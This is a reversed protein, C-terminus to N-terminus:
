KCLEGSLKNIKEDNKQIESFTEKAQKPIHKFALKLIDMWLKNNDKRVAQIKDIINNSDNKLNKYSQKFDKISVDWNIDERNLVDDLDKISHYSGEGTQPIPIFNFDKIDQWNKKFLNQIRNHLDEYISKLTAVSEDIIYLKDQYIIDGTDIGKDILHMTFGKPTNELISWINPDAGRNWPLLSIHLNIIRGEILEIIEKGIIYKYNYSIILDPKYFDIIPLTLNNGWKYIIDDPNNEVLWEYLDNTIKPNSTLFLLNM